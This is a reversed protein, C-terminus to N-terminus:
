GCVGSRFAEVEGRIGNLARAGERIAEEGDRVVTLFGFCLFREFKERQKM